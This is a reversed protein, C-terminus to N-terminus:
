TFTATINLRSRTEVCTQDQGVESEDFAVRGLTGLTVDVLCSKLEGEEPSHLTRLQEDWKRTYLKPTSDSSLWLSLYNQLVLDSYIFPLGREIM